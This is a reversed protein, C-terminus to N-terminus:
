LGEVKYIGMGTITVMSTIDMWTGGMLVSAYAVSAGYAPNQPDTESYEFLFAFMGAQTSDAMGLAIYSSGSDNGSNVLPQCYANTFVFPQGGMSGTINISLCGSAQAVAKIDEDTFGQLGETSIAVLRSSVGVDVDAKEYNKVNYEGNYAITITGTPEPVIVNAKAYRAVDINEGNAIINLTGKPEILTEEKAIGDGILQNALTEDVEKVEGKRFSLFKSM